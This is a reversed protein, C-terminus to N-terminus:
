AYFEYTVLQNFTIHVKVHGIFCLGEIMFTFTQLCDFMKCRRESLWYLEKYRFVEIKDSGSTWEIPTM